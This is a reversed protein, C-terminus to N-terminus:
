LPRLDERVRDWDRAWLSGRNTKDRERKRMGGEGCSLSHFDRHQGVHVLESPDAVQEDSRYELAESDRRVDQGSLERVRRDEETQEMVRRVVLGIAGRGLGHALMSVIAVEGEQSLVGSSAELSLESLRRGEGGERM